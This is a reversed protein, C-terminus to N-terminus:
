PGMRPRLRRQRRHGADQRGAGTAHGLHRRSAGRAVEEAEQEQRGVSSDRWQGLAGVITQEDPTVELVQISDGPPTQLELTVEATKPDYLRLDGQYNGSAFFTGKPSWIVARVGRPSKIVHRLKGTLVEWVRVEGAEEAKWSGHPTVLWRGDPSFDPFWALTVLKEDAKDAGLRALAQDLRARAKGPNGLSGHALALLMGDHLDREPTEALPNELTKIM